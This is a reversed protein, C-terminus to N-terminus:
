NKAFNIRRLEPSVCCEVFLLERAKVPYLEIGLMVISVNLNFTMESIGRRHM